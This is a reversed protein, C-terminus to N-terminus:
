RPKMDRMIIGIRMADERPSHMKGFCVGCIQRFIRMGVMRMQIMTMM